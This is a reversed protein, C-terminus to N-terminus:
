LIDTIRSNYEEDSHWDYHKIKMKNTCKNNHSFTVSQFIYTCYREPTLVQAASHIHIYNHASQYSM